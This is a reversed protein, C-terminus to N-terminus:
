DSYSGTENWDYLESKPARFVLPFPAEQNFQRATWDILWEGVRFVCHGGWPIPTQYWTHEVVSYPFCPILPDIRPLNSFHVEGINKLDPYHDLVIMRFYDTAQGCSGDAGEPTTFGLILPDNLGLEVLKEVLETMKLIKAIGHQSM